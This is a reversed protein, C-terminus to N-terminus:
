KGSFANKNNEIAKDIVLDVRNNLEMIEKDTALM